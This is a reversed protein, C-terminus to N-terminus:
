SALAHARVARRDLLPAEGVARALDHVDGAPGHRGVPASSRASAAATSRRSPRGACCRRPRSSASRSTGAPRSWRARPRASWGPSSTWARPARRLPRREALLPAVEPDFYRPRPGPRRARHPPRAAPRGARALHPAKEPVIRGSWVLDPGGPGAPWLLPDVGNPVVEVDGLVAAWRQAVDDSVAVFRSALAGDLAGAEQWPNPPTHLTTVMPTTCCRPWPWRCTTSATTTSWTSGTWTACCGRCRDAAHLPAGVPLAGAPRRHRGPRRPSRGAPRLRPRRPRRLPRQRRPRLPRRPPGGRHALPGPVLHAGRSRRRLAAGRPLPAAAVIGIRLPRDPLTVRHPGPDGPWRPSPRAPPPGPSGRAPTHAHRVLDSPARAM